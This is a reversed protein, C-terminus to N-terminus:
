KAKVPEHYRLRKGEAGRIALITRAGDDLKRTNYKFSTESVYRHLHHKSVSHYTGILARQLISFYGEITNTYVDDRVYEGVSHKVSQHGGEFNPALGKYTPLEDTMIRSSLCVNGQIVRRLEKANVRSVPEAHVRGGREVMGVVPTKTSPRREGVKCKGTPKGGVYVEDIEVTGSLKETGYGAPPTMAWRIRHMLFLASKYSLGTERHIQM